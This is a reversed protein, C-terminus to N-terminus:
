SRNQTVIDADELGEALDIASDELSTVSVDVGNLLAELKGLSHGIEVFLLSDKRSEHPGNRRAPEINTNITM